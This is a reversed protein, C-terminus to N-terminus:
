KIKVETLAEAIKELDYNDPMQYNDTDVDDDSYKLMQRCNLFHWYNTGARGSGRGGLFEIKFLEVNLVAILVDKRM